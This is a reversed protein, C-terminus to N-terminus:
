DAGAFATGSAAYDEDFVVAIVFNDMYGIKAVGTGDEGDVAGCFSYGNVV